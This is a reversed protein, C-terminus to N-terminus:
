YQLVDRHTWSGIRRQMKFVPCTRVPPHRKAIHSAPKGNVFFATRCKSYRGKITTIYIIVDLIDVPKRGKKGNKSFAKRLLLKEGPYGKTIRSKWWSTRKRNQNEVLIDKEQEPKGGPHGKGTRTQWWSM